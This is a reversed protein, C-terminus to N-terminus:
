WSLGAHSADGSRTLRGRVLAVGDEGGRDLAESGATQGPGAHALDGARGAERHAGEIVVEGGLFRQDFLRKARGAKGQRLARASIFRASAGSRSRSSPTPPSNRAVSQRRGSQVRTTIRSASRDGRFSASLGTRSATTESAASRVRASAAAKRSSIVAPLIRFHSGRSTAPRSKWANIPWKTACAAAREFGGRWGPPSGKRTCRTSLRTAPRSRHPTEGSGVPCVRRM